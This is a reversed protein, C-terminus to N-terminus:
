FYCRGRGVLYVQWQMVKEWVKIPYKSKKQDTWTCRAENSILALAGQLAPKESGLGQVAQPCRPGPEASGYLLPALEGLTSTHHLSLCVWCCMGPHRSRSSGCRSASACTAGGRPPGTIGPGRWARRRAPATPSGKGLVPGVGSCPRGQARFRGRDCPRGQPWRRRWREARAAGPRAVGSARPRRGVPFPPSHRLRPRRQGRSNGTAVGGGRQGPQERCWASGGPPLPPPLSQGPWRQDWGTM